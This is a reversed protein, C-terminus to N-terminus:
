RRAAAIETLVDDLSYGLKMAELRTIAMKESISRWTVNAARDALVSRSLVRATTASTPFAPSRHGLLNM